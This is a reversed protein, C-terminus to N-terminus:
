RELAEAFALVHGDFDESYAARHGWDRDRLPSIEKAGASLARAHFDAPGEVLLYVEAKPEHSDQLFDSRKGLLRAASTSPMLGLVTTESLQFESMGPVNLTPRLGLVESYFEASREQDRVYLIFHAKM